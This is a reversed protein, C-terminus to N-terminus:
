FFVFGFALCCCFGVFCWYGTRTNSFNPKKSRPCKLSKFLSTIAQMKLSCWLDKDCLPLSMLFMPFLKKAIEKASNNYNESSSDRSLENTLM